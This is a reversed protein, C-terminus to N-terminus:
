VTLSQEQEGTHDKEKAEEARCGQRYDDEEVPGAMCRLGRGQAM